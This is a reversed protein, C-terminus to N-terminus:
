RAGGSTSQRLNSELWGDLDIKRYRVLRGVKVYAPGFGRKRWSELTKPSTQLRDAAQIPTLNELHSM